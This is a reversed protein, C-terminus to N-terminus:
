APSMLLDISFPHAFPHFLYSLRANQVGIPRRERPFISPSPTRKGFDGRKRTFLPFILEQWFEVCAALHKKPHMDWWGTPMPPLTTVLYTLINGALLALEPLRQVSEPAFVFQRHLGLMQKAALPIQEVPWRDVYLAFITRPTVPVNTALVLPTEYLPDIFVWISFTAHQSDVKEDAQVLGHWGRAQITRGEWQFTVEEDADNTAPIVKGKRQRALPRVLVGFERPRGNKNQVLENRRATCNKAMRVVYRDVEAEQLDSIHVGADVVAIEDAKLHKGVWALTDKKLRAETMEEGEIRILKTLLPIRQGDIEGVRVVMGFGVGKAARNVLRSFFRGAWGKLQPRWFTTWDVPLPQYGEYQHAQWRGEKLVVGQWAQILEEIKWSGYRFAGWSRRSTAEDFGSQKLASFIAGRSQLFSGNLMAWLLHLIGLNTGIPLSQVIMEITQITTEIAASM